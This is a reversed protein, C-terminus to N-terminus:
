GGSQERGDTLLRMERGPQRTRVPTDECHGSALAGTVMATGDKGHAFHQVAADGCRARQRDEAETVKLSTM